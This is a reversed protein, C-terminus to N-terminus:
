LNVAPLIMHDLADRFNTMAVWNHEGREEEAWIHTRKAREYPEGLLRELETLIEAETEPDDVVSNRLDDLDSRDLPSQRDEM